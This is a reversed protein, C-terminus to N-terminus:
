MNWLPLLVHILFNDLCQKKFNRKFFIDEENTVYKISDKDMVPDPNIGESGESGNNDSGGQDPRNYCKYCPLWAQPTSAISFVIQTIEHTVYYLMENREYTAVKFRNLLEVYEGCSKSRNFPDVIAQFINYLERKGSAYYQFYYEVSKSFNLECCGGRQRYIYFAADFLAASEYYM